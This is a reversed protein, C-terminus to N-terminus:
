VEQKELEPRATKNLFLPEKSIQPVVVPKCSEVVRGTIGEGIRYRARQADNSVGHAAEGHLQGTEANLLTVSSRVIGHRGLSELVRRLGSRLNPTGSLISNVDLLTTLVQEDRSPDFCQSM